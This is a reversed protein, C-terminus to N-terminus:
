HSAARLPCLVLLALVDARLELQQDRPTIRSFFCVADVIPVALFFVGDNPLVRSMGEAIGCHKLESRVGPM